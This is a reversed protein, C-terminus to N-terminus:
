KSFELISIYKYYQSNFYYSSYKDDNNKDMCDESAKSNLKLYM